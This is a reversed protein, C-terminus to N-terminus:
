VDILAEFQPTFRLASYVDLARACRRLSDVARGAKNEVFADHTALYYLAMPDSEHTDIMYDGFGLAKFMNREKASFM